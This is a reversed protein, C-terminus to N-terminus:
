HCESCSPIEVKKIRDNDHCKLCTDSGQEEVVEGHYEELVWGEIHTGYILFKSIKELEGTTLISLVAMASGPSYIMYDIDKVLEGVLNEDSDAASFNSIGHCGLCNEAFLLAGVTDSSVFPFKSSSDEGGYTLFSTFIFLIILLKKM